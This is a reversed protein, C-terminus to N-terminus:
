SAEQRATSTPSRTCLGAWNQSGCTDLQKAVGRPLCCPGAPPNEALGCVHIRQNDGGVEAALSGHPDVAVAVPERWAPVLWQFPVPM